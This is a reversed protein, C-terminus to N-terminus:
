VRVITEVLVVLGRSSTAKMMAPTISLRRLLDQCFRGYILISEVPFLVCRMGM